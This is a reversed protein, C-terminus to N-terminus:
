RIFLGSRGVDVASWYVLLVRGQIQELRVFPDHWFRSDESEDRNDGLVFVSGQPVDVPGFAAGGGGQNWQVYPENLLKGNVIVQAGVVEVSDGAVGIVRKVLNGQSSKGSSAENKSNHMFVVVDGRSPTAWSLVVKNLFPLRLGYIFKPVLIYDAKRLTPQMSASPVYFAEFVAGKLLVVLLLFFIICRLSGYLLPSRGSSRVTPEVASLPRVVESRKLLPQVRSSM